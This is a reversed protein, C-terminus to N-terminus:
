ALTAAIPDIAIPEEVPDVVYCREFLLNSIARMRQEGRLPTHALGTQHALEQAPESVSLVELRDKHVQLAGHVRRIGDRLDASARPRHLAHPM